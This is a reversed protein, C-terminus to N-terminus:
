LWDGTNLVGQFDENTGDLLKVEYDNYWRFRNSFETSSRFAIERAEDTSWIIRGENYAYTGGNNGALLYIKKNKNSPKHGVAHVKQPGMYEYGKRLCRM